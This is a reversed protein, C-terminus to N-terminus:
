FYLGANQKIELLQVPTRIFTYTAFMKLDQSPIDLKKLYWSKKEIQMM